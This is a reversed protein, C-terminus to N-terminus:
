LILSIQSHLLPAFLLLNQVLLAFSMIATATLIILLKYFRKIILLIMKIKKASNFEKSLDQGLLLKNTLKKNM